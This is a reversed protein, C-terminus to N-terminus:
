TREEHWSRRTGTGSRYCGLLGRHTWCTAIGLFPVDSGCVKSATYVGVTQGDVLVVSGAALGELKAPVRRRWDQRLYQGRPTGTTELYLNGNM